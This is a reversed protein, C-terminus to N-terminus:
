LTPTMSDIKYLFNIVLSNIDYGKNLRQHRKTNKYNLILNAAMKYNHAEFVWQNIEEDSIYESAGQDKCIIFPVGCAVAETCVCGFGEFISPLVFLDLECYLERLESHRVEPRIEVINQLNHEKIYQEIDNKLPGSGVLIVRLDKIEDEVLIRVADLLTIHDKLEVFNGICGITFKEGDKSRVPDPYFKSTDVGNYLVYTDKLIPTKVNNVLSLAKRYSDYYINDQIKPFTTLMEKVYESICVHLDIKEFLKISSKAKYIANWRKDSWKGNRIQYPDCDHHQVITKIKPNLNKLALAYTAYHATHGHAVAIDDVNIGLSKIKKIFLQGNISDTAGNLILSPMVFANFYRVTIGEFTYDKEKTWPYKPVFVLVRYDRNREIAKVQDYIYGGRFNNESPFFPTIQIYYKM